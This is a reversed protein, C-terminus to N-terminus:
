LCKKQSSFVTNEDVDDNPTGILENLPTLGNNVFRKIQAINM